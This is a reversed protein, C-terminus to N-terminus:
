LVGGLPRADAMDHGAPPVDMHKSFPAPPLQIHYGDTSLNKLVVLPDQRAMRRQSNLEFSLTLRPLGFQLLLAEPVRELGELRDVYLYLGEKKDSKYVDCIVM